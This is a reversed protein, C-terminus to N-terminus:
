RGENSRDPIIGAFERLAANTQTYTGRFTRTKVSYKGTRPNKGLSVRLQWKRCKGRPKDKELQVISGKGNTKAM